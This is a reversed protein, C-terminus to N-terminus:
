DSLLDLTMVTRRRFCRRWNPFKPLTSEGGSKTRPCSATLNAQCFVRANSLPEKVNPNKKGATGSCRATGRQPISVPVIEKALVGSEYAAKSRSYSGIAYADQEERTINSTKATNEACNGQWSCFVLPLDSHLWFPLFHCLQKLHHCFALFREEFFWYIFFM